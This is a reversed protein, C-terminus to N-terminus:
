RSQVQKYQMHVAFACSSDQGIIFRVVRVDPQDAARCGAYSTALARVYGSQVFSGIGCRDRGPLHFPRLLLACCKRLRRSKRANTYTLLGGCGTFTIQPRNTLPRIVSVQGQGSTPVWTKVVVALGHVGVHNVIQLRSITQINNNCINLSATACDPGTVHFEVRLALSTLLQVHQQQFLHVSWAAADYIMDHARLSWLIHVVQEMYLSPATSDCAPFM